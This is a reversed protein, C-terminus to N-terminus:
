KSCGVNHAFQNEYNGRPYYNVVVVIGNNPIDCVGVGIIKTLKWVLQTFHLTRGPNTVTYNSKESYWLTVPTAGLIFFFHKTKKSLEIEFLVLFVM